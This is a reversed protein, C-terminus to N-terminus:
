DNNEYREKWMEERIENVMDVVDQENKLGLREAEGEFAKQINMFAVKAANAFIIKDGEEIFIVKDGDKLNLKKRIDIPITIQGKSTVKAIEM